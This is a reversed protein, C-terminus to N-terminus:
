VVYSLFSDMHCLFDLLGAPQLFELGEGDLAVSQGHGNADDDAAAEGGDGLGQGIVQNHGDHGHEQAADVEGLPGDGQGLPEPVGLDVLGSVDNGVGQVIAIEDGGDDIEQNQGQHHEPQHLEQVLEHGQAVLLFFFGRRGRGGLGGVFLLEQGFDPVQQLLLKGFHAGELGSPARERYLGAFQFKDTKKSACIFAMSAATKAFM